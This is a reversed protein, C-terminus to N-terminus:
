RAGSCQRMVPERIATSGSGSMSQLRGCMMGIFWWDASSMGQAKAASGTL